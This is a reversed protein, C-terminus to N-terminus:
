RERNIVQESAGPFSAGFSGRLGAGMYNSAFPRRPPIHEFSPTNGSVVCPRIGPWFTRVPRCGSTKQSERPTKRVVERPSSVGRIAETASRYDRLTIEGFRKRDPEM